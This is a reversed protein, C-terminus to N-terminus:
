GQGGFASEGGSSNLKRAIRDIRSAGRPSEDKLAELVREQSARMRNIRSKLRRAHRLIVILTDRKAKKSPNLLPDNLGQPDQM